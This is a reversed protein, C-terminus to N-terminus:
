MVQFVRDVLWDLVMELIHRHVLCVEDWIMARPIFTQGRREPKWGNKGSRFFSHYTLANM